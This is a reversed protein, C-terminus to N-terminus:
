LFMNKLSNKREGFASTLQYNDKYLDFPRYFLNLSANSGFVNLLVPFQPHFAKMLNKAVCFSCAMELSKQQALISAFSYICTLFLFRIIPDHM